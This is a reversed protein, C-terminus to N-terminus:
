RHIEGLAIHALLEVLAPNEGVAPQLQWAVAPHAARLADMLAPLDERAHRGVGLFMPVVTVSRAGRAILGAAATPLDPETLELYACVVAAQPEIAQVRAAVAQMPRHWLPDRSGHAFLVIGRQPSM